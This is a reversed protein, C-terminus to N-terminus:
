ADEKEKLREIIKMIEDSKKQPLPHRLMRYYTQEGIGLADAVQWQRVGVHRALKRLNENAQIKM